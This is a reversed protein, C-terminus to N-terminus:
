ELDSIDDRLPRGGLTYLRVLNEPLDDRSTSTSAVAVPKSMKSALEGVFGAAAVTGGLVLATKTRSRM